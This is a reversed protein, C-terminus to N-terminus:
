PLGAKRWDEPTIALKAVELQGQFLDQSEAGRVDQPDITVRVVKRHTGHVHRAASAEWWYAHLGCKDKPARNEGSRYQYQSFYIARGDALLVKWAEFPQKRKRVTALAKPDSICCM